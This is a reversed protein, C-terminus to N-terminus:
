WGGTASSTASGSSSSRGTTPLHGTAARQEALYGVLNAAAWEDLGAARAREPAERSPPAASSASRLRRAGPGARGPPGARRGELVADEGAAGPAPTVLVRDHTIDEIRWSSSGLLFVEGVRSEYVM